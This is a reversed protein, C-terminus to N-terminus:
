HLLKILDEVKTNWAHTNLDIAKKSNQKNTIEASFEEANNIIYVHEKLEELGNSDTGIVKKTTALYEYVKISNAGSKKDEDVVYPVTCIDFNKVYNPYIEYHKDGLYYFNDLKLISNFVQKDLIQGVFVFSANKTLKMTENLLDVDLLHTIKGGFGVIPRPINKMDEPIEVQIDKAFRSVDVGNKILVLEKPHYAKSFDRINDNSNTIWFDCIKAYEKYASFIEEKIKSYVNFKAFNDWADFVSKKPNLSKSLKSAFINQNLLFYDEHIGLKSLSENIFNIYKPNEYQSIFWKYGNLVQGFIDKSVFDIVYFNKSVEYLKFNSKSYIVKGKILNPKRKLLIEVLTTPRNIIVKVDSSNKNLHEIFHADRTRFGELIIKRWDHFPAILINM